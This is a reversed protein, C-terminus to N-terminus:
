ATNPRHRRGHDPPMVKNDPSRFVLADGDFGRLAETERILTPKDLKSRAYAILDRRVGPDRLAPETWGRVLSDPLPRAAMQGFLLPSRRLWGIRLQRCALRVGGPLRVALVAM